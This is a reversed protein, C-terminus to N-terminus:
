LPISDLLGKDNDLLDRPLVRGDGMAWGTTTTKEQERVPALPYPTPTTPIHGKIIKNIGQTPKTHLLKIPNSLKIRKHKHDGM